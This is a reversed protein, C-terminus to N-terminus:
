DTQRQEWLSGILRNGRHNYKIKHKSLNKKENFLLNLTKVNKMILSSQTEVTLLFDTLIQCKCFHSGM